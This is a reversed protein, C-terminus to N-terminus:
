INESSRYLRILDCYGRLAGAREVFARRHEAHGALLVYVPARIVWPTQM